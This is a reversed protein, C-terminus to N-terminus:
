IEIVVKGFNAGKLLGCFASPAKEIGKVIDEKYKIQGSNVMPLIENLFNDYEEVHDGIIFGQLKLKKVIMSTILVPTKDIRLFHFIARLKALMKGPSFGPEALTLADNYLSIAGCVPVRAFNNLLPFVAWFVSGAINEFYVDIGKPCAKKLDKAFTKSKHDICADFGFVEVAYKCKQPGGAIGVVTCGKQKALQGVMSGVPGTAAGVVVTEGEKPEGIQNLGYYATFGPMGLAGLFLSPKDSTPIKTVTDPELPMQKSVKPSIVAYTQWGTLSIVIDGSKLEANKSAQVECIAHGTLAEGLSFPAIYSKIENMRGRMYPDLSFYLTKLLVQGETLEPVERQAVSFDSPKPAGKPRKALVIQKNVYKKGQNDM